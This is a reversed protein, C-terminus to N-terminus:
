SGALNAQGLTTSIARLAEDCESSLVKFHQGYRRHESLVKKRMQNAENGHSHARCKSRYNHLRRLPATVEKAREEEWGMGILCEEVLKISGFKTDPSRGLSEALSRLEKGKLGEILLQDLRLIEDAWEDPSTTVPYHVGNVVNEPRRTWWPPANENLQEVAQRLSELADYETEWTAEFDTKFARKSIPGKPLENHAKWYLQEEHPLNRLYAIYTHVQGADNIDYTELHWAGRCSISRDHLTYKESNSKYRLLVDPRFFAPSMEFPLDSQQFYNATESPYTSIESTEGHKWDFAIFSEYKRDPPDKAGHIETSDQRSIRSEVIQFGRMYGANNPGIQSRYILDVDETLSDEHGSSRGCFDNTGLRTIDFMRVMTSDTLAMYEDIVSRRITVVTGAEFGRPVGDIRTITVVDELDGHNDLRCYAAREEVYHLGFLHILKQLLEISVQDFVGEFHRAFVLQEGRAITESASHALPREIWVKPPDFSNVISWSDFPNGSWKMLDAVDPPMVSEFPVLVAHIFTGSITCYLVIDEQDQDARLLDTADELAIWGSLDDGEPPKRAQDILKRTTNNVARAPVDYRLSRKAIALLQSAVNAVSQVAM